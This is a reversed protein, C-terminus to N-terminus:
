SSLDKNRANYVQNRLSASGGHQVWWDLDLEELPVDPESALVELVEKEVSNIVAQERPDAVNAPWAPFQANHRRGFYEPINLNPLDQPIPAPGYTREWDILRRRFDDRISQQQSTMGEIALNHLEAPDDQLDWFQEHGDHFWYTYKYYHDRLSIWRAPGDHCETFQCSRDRHGQPALLNDGPFRWNGPLPAGAAGAITPLLDLLDVFDDNTAGAPARGPFRLIMPVRIAPEYSCQKQWAWHDGLMEGHDSAFLVLTNDALGLEDLESLIRGIQEDVFSIQAYYAQTSRALRQPSAKDMDAFWDMGRHFQALSEGKCRNPPPVQRNRYFEAWRPPANLPPHPAIWSSWCFWPRNRNERLFEITRDAVWHSGHHEEPVISQQPQHYLLHRVGHGHRIHGFGASKLYMLYDDDQRYHPTEEMLQMRRFGHHERSPQFHMKGIAQTHYGADSLIRPLTPIAPDMHHGQNQYYRHVVSRQGTLLCYRAPICVPNPTHAFRYLCGQGALRDLNPTVIYPNGMCGLADYRQQDTFLLLINPQNTPM